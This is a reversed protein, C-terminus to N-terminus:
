YMYKSLMKTCKEWTQNEQFLKDWRSAHLKLNLYFRLQNFRSERMVHRETWGKIMIIINKVFNNEIYFVCTIVSSTITVDNWCYKADKHYLIGYFIVYIASFSNFWTGTCYIFRCTDHKLQHKLWRWCKFEHFILRKDSKKESGNGSYPMTIITRPDKSNNTTTAANKM